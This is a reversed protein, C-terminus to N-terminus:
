IEGPSHVWLRATVGGVHVGGTPWGASSDSAPGIRLRVILSWSDSAPSDFESM